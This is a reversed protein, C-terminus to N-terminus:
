MKRVQEFGGNALDAQALGSFTLYLSTGVCLTLTMRMVNSCTSRTKIWNFIM